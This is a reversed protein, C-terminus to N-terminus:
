GRPRPAGIKSAESRLGKKVLVSQAHLITSIQDNTYTPTEEWVEINIAMGIFADENISGGGDFTTVTNILLHDESGDQSYSPLDYQNGDSNLGSFFLDTYGLPFKGVTSVKLVGDNIKLLNMEGIENKREKLVLNSNEDLAIKGQFTKKIMAM